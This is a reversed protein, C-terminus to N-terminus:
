MLTMLAGSKDHEILFYLSKNRQIFFLSARYKLPIAESISRSPSKQPTIPVVTSSVGLHRRVVPSDMYSNAKPYEENTENAAQQALQHFYYARSQRSLPVNNPHAQLFLDPRNATFTRRPTYDVYASLPVSSTKLVNSPTQYGDTDNTMIWM